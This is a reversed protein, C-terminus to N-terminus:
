GADYSAPPTSTYDGESIPDLAAPRLVYAGSTSHNKRNARGAPVSSARLRNFQFHTTAALGGPTTLYHDLPPATPVSSAGTTGSSVASASPSFNQQNVASTRPPAANPNFAPPPQYDEAAFAASDQYGMLAQQEESIQFLPSSMDVNVTYNPLRQVPQLIKQQEGQQNYLSNNLGVDAQQGAQGLGTGTPPMIIMNNGTGTELPPPGPRPGGQISAGGVVYYNDEEVRCAGQDGGIKNPALEEANKMATTGATGANLMKQPAKEVEAAQPQAVHGRAEQANINRSSARPPQVPEMPSLVFSAYRGYGARSSTGGPKMPPAPRSAGGGRGGGLPVEVSGRSSTAPPAATNVASATTSENGLRRTARSTTTGGRPAPQRDVEAHTFYASPPGRPASHVGATSGSGALPDEHNKRHEVVDAEVEDQATIRHEKSGNKLERLEGQPGRTAGFAFEKAARRNRRNDLKRQRKSLSTPKKSSTDDVELRRCSDCSDCKIIDLMGLIVLVALVLFLVSVAFLSGVQTAHASFEALKKHADEKDDAKRLLATSSTNTRTRGAEHEGEGPDAAAARSSGQHQRVIRSHTRPAALIVKPQQAPTSSANIKVAVAGSTPAAPVDLSPKNENNGAPPEQDQSSGPRRSSPSGVVLGKQINNKELSMEELVGKTKKGATRMLESATYVDCPRLDNPGIGKPVFSAERLPLAKKEKGYNEYFFDMLKEHGAQGYDEWFDTRNRELNSCREVHGPPTYPWPTAIESYLANQVVVLPFSYKDEKPSAPPTFQTNVYTGRVRGLLGATQSQSWGSSQVRNSHVLRHLVWQKDEEATSISRYCGIDEPRGAGSIRKAINEDQPPCVRKKRVCPSAMWSQKYELDALRPFDGEADAEDELQSYEAQTPSFTTDPLAACAPGFFEDVSLDRLLASHHFLRCSSAGAPFVDWNRSEKAQFATCFEDLWCLRACRAATVKDVHVAALLGFPAEQKHACVGVGVVEGDFFQDIPTANRLLDVEPVFYIRLPGFTSAAFIKTYNHYSDNSNKYVVVETTENVSSAGTTSPLQRTETSGPTAASRPRSGEPGEGASRVAVAAPPSGREDPAGRLLTTNIYNIYDGRYLSMKTKKVLCPVAKWEQKEKLFLRKVLDPNSISLRRGQEQLQHGVHGSTTPFPVFTSAPVAAYEPAWFRDKGISQLLTSHHFLLCTTCSCASEDLRCKASTCSEYYTAPPGRSPARAGSISSNAQKKNMMNTVHSRKFTSSKKDTSEIEEDRWLGRQIATCNQDLLCLRACAHPHINAIGIAARLGYPALTPHACLGTRNHLRHDEPLDDGEPKVVDSLYGPVLQFGDPVELEAARPALAEQQKVLLDSATSNTELAAKFLHHKQKMRTHQNMIEVETNMRKVFETELEDLQEKLFETIYNRLPLKFNALLGNKGVLRPRALHDHLLSDPDVRPLQKSDVWLDRVIEIEMRLESKRGRPDPNENQIQM